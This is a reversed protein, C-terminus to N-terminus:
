KKTVEAGFVQRLRPVAYYDIGLFQGAGAMLAISAPLIWAMEWGGLGSLIFNATLLVSIVASLWTMLGLILGVGIAFEAMVLLSQFFMAITTSPMITRMLAEYWLPLNELLPAKTGSITAGTVADSSRLWDFPIMLNGERLWSDNGIRFFDSMKGAGNFAAPGIIKKYGEIFWLAGIYLRLPFLWLRQGRSALLGGAITKRHGILVLHRNFYRIMPGLGAVSLVYFLDVLFKLVVAPWGRLQIKTNTFGYTPGASIMVGKLKAHFPELSRGYLIRQINSAISEAQRHGNEVTNPGDEANDGAAFVQPFEPLRLFEDTRLRGAGDSLVENSLPRPRVGGTYIVLDAPFDLSGEETMTRVQTKSVESVKTGTFIQIGKKVLRQSVAKRLKEDLEPLITARSQLLVVDLLPYMAKIDGATEVGTLGGGCIVVSGTGLEDLRNKIERASEITDLSFAHELAGPISSLGPSAGAALILCDYSYTGNQGKLLQSSFDAEAIEDQVLDINQNKFIESLPLKLADPSVRGSCAEHLNTLLVHDELRDILTLRIRGDLKSILSKATRIGAYGAGLIVINLQEM